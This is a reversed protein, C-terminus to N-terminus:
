RLSGSFIWCLCEHKICTTLSILTMDDRIKRLRQTLTCDTTPWKISMHMSVSFKFHSRVYMIIVKPSILKVCVYINVVACSVFISTFYYVFYIHLCVSHAFLSLFAHTIIHLAVAATDVIKIQQFTIGAVVKIENWANTKCMKTHSIILQCVCVCLVSYCNFLSSLCIAIEFLHSFLQYCHLWYIGKEACLCLLWNWASSM